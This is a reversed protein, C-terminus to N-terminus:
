SFCPFEIWHDLAVVPGVEKSLYHCRSRTEEHPLTVKRSKDRRTICFGLDLNMGMYVRGYAGCGIIEGKRWKITPPDNEKTMKYMDSRRLSLGFGVNNAESKRFVLTGLLDLILRCQQFGSRKIYNSLGQKQREPASQWGKEKLIWTRLLVVMVSVVGLFLVYFIRVQREPASQWGKEKLIWTRLLVVM